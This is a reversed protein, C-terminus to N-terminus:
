FGARLGIVTLWDLSYSFGAIRMMASAKFFLGFNSTFAALVSSLILGLGLSLVLDCIDM